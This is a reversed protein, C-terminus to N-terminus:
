DALIIGVYLYPDYSDYMYGDSDGLTKVVKVTSYSDTWAWHVKVIDGVLIHASDSSFYEADYGSKAYKEPHPVHPGWHPSEEFTMAISTKTM